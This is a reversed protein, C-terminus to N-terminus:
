NNTVNEQDCFKRKSGVRNIHEKNKHSDKIEKSYGQSYASSDVKVKEEDRIGIKLVEFIATGCKRSSSKVLQAVRKMNHFQLIIRNNCSHAWTEGLSGTQPNVAIRTTMQNVVVVSAPTCLALQHLCQAMGSLMFQSFINRKKCFFFITLYLIKYIRARKAMNSFDRRFHFSVSDIIIIRILPNKEIFNELNQIIALQERFDHSVHINSLISERTFQKAEELYHKRNKRTAMKKVHRVLADAIQAVRSVMFSGETDIYIAHGGVGGFCKPIQVDVALQIMLQTKGVGAVGVVETVERLPIGNPDFLTDLSRCFSIVNPGNNESLLDLATKTRLPNKSLPTEVSTGGSTRVLKIIELADSNSVDLDRSLELPSIDVLQTATEFGAERLKNHFKPPFALCYLPLSATASTVSVVSEM